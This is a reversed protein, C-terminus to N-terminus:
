WPKDGPRPRDEKPDLLLGRVAKKDEPPLQDLWREAAARDLAAAQQQEREKREDKENRGDRGQDQKAQQDKGDRKEDKKGDKDQQDKKAQEDKQGDKNQGDKNQEDKPDQKAQDPPAEKAPEVTVTVKHRAEAQWRDAAVVGLTFEGVEGPAGRLCGDPDLRLGKPPVGDSLRWTFPATGGSLKLPRNAPKGQELRIPDSEEIVPPPNVKMAIEVGRTRGDDARITATLKLDGAKEPSGAITGDDAIALGQEAKGEWRYRQAPGRVGLRHQYKTWATAAPIEAADPAFGDSVVLTLKREATRGDGLGIAQLTLETSGIATPTGSITAGGGEAEALALGAPLAPTATWRPRDLGVCALAATYPQNVIAESLRETTIAPQPLVALTVTGNAAAKAGDQVTIKLQHLGAAAPTGSLKGDSALELGPPLRTGEAPAYRYPPTGGRAAIAATFAEGVRGDPLRVDTLHLKKAEAEAKVRAEDLLAIAARRLEDRAPGFQPDYDAARTMALVALELQGQKWRALALNHWADAALKPDDAASAKELHSAAKAADTELLLSGLNFHAPLFGPRDALLKELTTRAEAPPQRAALAIQDWPDAAGATATALTFLLAFRRM